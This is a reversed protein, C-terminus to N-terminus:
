ANYGDIKRFFNLWGAQQFLETCDPLKKIWTLDTPEARNVKGSKGSKGMKKGESVLLQRAKPNLLHKIFQNGAEEFKKVIKQM